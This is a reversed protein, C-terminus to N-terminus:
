GTDESLFPVSDERELDLLKGESCVSMGGYEHPYPLKWLLAIYKCSM